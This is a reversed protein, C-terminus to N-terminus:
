FLKQKWLYTNTGGMKNNWHGRSDSYFIVRRLQTHTTLQICVGMPFFIIGITFVTIM